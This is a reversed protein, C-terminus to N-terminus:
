PTEEHQHGSALELLDDDDLLDRDVRVVRCKTLATVSATRQGTGQGAREGLVSGPGLQAVSNGGVTVDVLGDLVLALDEGHEGEVFLADGAKVTVPKPTKRGRRMIITSLRRELSTEAEAVPVEHDEDGWPSHAGFSHHYWEDFDIVASKSVLLGRDDYLWHRPFTTAGVLERTSTGDAHLTLSLTTWVTPGKLKVFPAEGVLRPSPLGPRGGATQRFRIFGDGIEPEPRLDPFAVAEVIVAMGGLKVKTNSVRGGGQQGFDVIAGDEVTIWARLENAFRAGEPGLVEDLDVLVEPPPDDYHTVGFEFPTKTVGTIAASPIWSVSTVSSAFRMPASM